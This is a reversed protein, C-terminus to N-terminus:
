SNSTAIANCIGWFIVVAILSLGTSHTLDQTISLVLASGITLFATGILIYFAQRLRYLFQWAPSALRQLETATFMPGTSGDTDLTLTSREETGALSGDQRYARRFTREGHARKIVVGALPNFPGATVCGDDNVSYITRKM